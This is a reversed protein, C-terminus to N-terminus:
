EDAKHKPLAQVSWIATCLWGFAAPINVTITYCVALGFGILASIISLTTTVASPDEAWTRYRVVLNLACQKIKNWFKKM